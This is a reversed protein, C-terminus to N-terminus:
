PCHMYVEMVKSLVTAIYWASVECCKIVLDERIPEISRLDYISFSADLISQINSCLTNKENTEFGDCTFASCGHSLPTVAATALRTSTANSALSQNGDFPILKCAIDQLIAHSVHERSLLSQESKQSPLSAITIRIIEGIIGVGPHQPFSLAFRSLRQLTSLDESSAECIFQSIIDSVCVMSQKSVEVHSSTDGRSTLIAYRSAPSLWYLTPDSSNNSVATRGLPSYYNSSLADICAEFDEENATASELVKVERGSLLELTTTLATICLVSDHPKESLIGVLSSILRKTTIMEKNARTDSREKASLAVLVKLTSSFNQM